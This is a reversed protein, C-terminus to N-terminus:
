STSTVLTQPFHAMSTSVLANLRNHPKSLSAVFLTVFNQNSNPAHPVTPCWADSIASQFLFTRLVFLIHLDRSGPITYYTTFSKLNETGAINACLNRFLTDAVCNDTGPRYVVDYNYGALEIKWREIKDNKIKSKQQNGYIFAVSRQDTILKLHRGLYHRWKRIAEVIAYAEKEVAPHNKESATLTRSFFAVLRNGQSLSAGIAIDSADTEVVLPINYDVTVVM